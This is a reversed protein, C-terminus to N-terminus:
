EYQELKTKLTGASVYNASELEGINRDSIAETIYHQVVLFLLTLLDYNFVLAFLEFALIRLGNYKQAFLYPPRVM